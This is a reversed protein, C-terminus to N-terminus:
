KLGFKTEDSLVAMPVFCETNALIAPDNLGDCNETDEVFDGDKNKILIKYATIPIGIGGSYPTDWDIRV